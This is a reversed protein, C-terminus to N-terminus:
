SGRRVRRKRASKVRARERKDVFRVTGPTTTREIRYEGVNDPLRGSKCALWYQPEGSEPKVGQFEVKEVGEPLSNEDHLSGTARFVPIRQFDRRESAPSNLYDAYSKLHNLHPDRIEQLAAVLKAQDVPRSTGNQLRLFYALESIQDYRLLVFKALMCERPLPTDHLRREVSGEDHLACAAPSKQLEQHEAYLKDIKKSVDELVSQVEGKEVGLFIQHDDELQKKKKEFSPLGVFILIDFRESRVIAADFFRIHNTALFYMIRRQKWLEALKPLMSTTLFRGFADAAGERERVLEDPEDFLVVAHDLEMLQSFIRDATQQVGQVGEAVFHSSHLEVYKWGLAAAVTQVLTTKSAGPPGFMIASRAQNEAIPQDDPEPWTALGRRHVPHLFLSILDEAVTSTGQPSWTDGRDIIKGLPNDSKKLTPSPLLRFAERSALVGLLRRYAQLFSFVSATAWSEPRSDAPRHGSSWAIPGAPGNRVQTKETYERLGQLKDVFELLVDELFEQKVVKALAAKLLFTFTEYVYCYANGVNSYVFLPRYHRWTGIPEQTIGFAKFAERVLDQGRLGATFDDDFELTIALAWGLQDSDLAASRALHLAVEEALRGRSWSLMRAKLVDLGFGAASEAESQFATRELAEVVALAWYTHYANEPYWPPVRRSKKSLNQEGIGLRAADRSQLFVQSVLESHKETWARTQQLFLPLARSACYVPASEESKWSRTQAAQYFSEVLADVNLGPYLASAPACTPHCDRISEICTVTTTVHRLRRSTSEENRPERFLNFGPGKARKFEALSPIHKQCLERVRRRELALDKFNM